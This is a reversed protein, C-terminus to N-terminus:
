RAEALRHLSLRPGPREVQWLSVLACTLETPLRAERARGHTGAPDIV